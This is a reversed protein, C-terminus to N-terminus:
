DLKCAFVWSEKLRCFPVWMPSFNCLVAYVTESDVYELVLYMTVGLAGEGLLSM